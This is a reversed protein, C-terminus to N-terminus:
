DVVPVVGYRTRATARAAVAVRLWPLAAELQELERGFIIDAPTRASHM